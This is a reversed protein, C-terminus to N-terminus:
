RDTVKPSGNDNQRADVLLARIQAERHEVHLVASVKEIGGCRKNLADVPLHPSVASPQCQLRSEAAQSQPFRYRWGFTLRRSYEGEFSRLSSPATSATISPHQRALYLRENLRLESDKRARSFRFRRNMARRAVVGPDFEAFIRRTATSDGEIHHFWRPNHIIDRTRTSGLGRMHSSAPVLLACSISSICLSRSAQYM